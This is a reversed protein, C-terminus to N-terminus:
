VFFYDGEKTRRVSTVTCVNLFFNRKQITKQKLLDEEITRQPYYPLFDNLEDIRNLSLTYFPNNYRKKSPTKYDPINVNYFINYYIRTEYIAKLQIYFYNIQM